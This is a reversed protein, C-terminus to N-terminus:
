WATEVMARLASVTVSAASSIIPFDKFGVNQGVVIAGDIRMNEYTCLSAEAAVTGTLTTYNNPSRVVASTASYVDGILGVVDALCMHVPTLCSKDPPEGCEAAPDTSMSAVGGILCLSADDVDVAGCRVQGVVTSSNGSAASVKCTGFARVASCQGAAATATPAHTLTCDSNGFSATIGSCDCGVGCLLPRADLSVDGAAVFSVKLLESNSGASNVVTPASSPSNEVLFYSPSPVKTNTLNDFSWAGTGASGGPTFRVGSPGGNCNSCSTANGCLYDNTGPAAEWRRAPSAVNPIVTKDPSWAGGGSHVRRWCKTTGAATCTGSFTGAGAGTWDATCPREVPNATYNDCGPEDRDWVFISGASDFFLKCSREDTGLDNGGVNVLPAPTGTRPPPGFSQNAFVFHAQAGTAWDGPAPASSPPRFTALRSQLGATDFSAPPIISVSTPACPCSPVGTCAPPASLTEASVIQGCGCGDDNGFAAKFQAVGATLIAVGNSCLAGKIGSIDNGAHITPVGTASNGYLRRLTVRAHAAGYADDATTAPLFPFLGIATMYIARDRDKYVNETTAGAGEDADDGIGTPLASAPLTEDSNDDFRLLCAGRESGVARPVLRWAHRQMFDDSGTLGKPLFVRPEGTGAPPLFEQGNINTTNNDPNLLTDFDQGGSSSSAVFRDVYTQLLTLCSEALARAKADDASRIALASNSTVVSFQSVVVASLIALVVLVILVVMGRRAPAEATEQQSTTM